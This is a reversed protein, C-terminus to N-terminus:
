DALHRVAWRALLTGDAEVLSSLTLPVEYPPGAVIRKGEGGVALPTVTTCLEDVVGARLLGSLLTPGGECLIRSFGEARLDGVLARLDGVDGGRHLRVDARGELKPPLSSGVVVMPKGAPGYGEARVTGAGVVLVQAGARLLRFVEHDTENNISGSLGDPGQAAGDVTAVMNVRLWPEAPWAYLESLGGNGVLTRM